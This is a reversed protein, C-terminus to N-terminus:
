LDQTITHNYKIVYSLMGNPDMQASSEKSVYENSFDPGLTTISEPTMLQPLPIGSSFPEGRKIVGSAIWRNM